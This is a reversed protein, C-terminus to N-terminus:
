ASAIPLAPPLADADIVTVIDADPILTDARLILQEEVNGDMRFGADKLSGLLVGNRLTAVYRAELFDIRLRRAFNQLFCAFANEVKKKAVRCSLALDTLVCTNEDVTLAAFGILGYDGFIDACSLHFCRVNPIATMEALSQRSLRRGSLNLQNTRQLLESCRELTAEDFASSITLRMGCQRLFQSADSGEAECAAKRKAEIMYLSRRRVSESTVPVDFSELTLLQPIDHVDFIRVAPLNQGVEGREFASDDIFAFSDIGIDLRKAITRLSASKRNWHIEPHLFYETLGYKELAAFAVDRDNKSAISQLIGREDLKRILHLSEARPFVGDPGDDGVVGTWLTNDLDWVVCKVKSAPTLLPPSVPAFVGPKYRVFDLWTLAIRAPFDNEPFLMALAHDGNRPLAAAARASRAVNQGPELRFTERHILEGAHRLELCLQFAEPGLNWAEMLFEDPDFTPAKRTTRRIIKERIANYYSQPQLFRRNGVLPSLLDSAVSARSLAADTWQFRRYSRVDLARRSVTSQLKGWKRFAIEVGYGLPGPYGANTAIGGEFRACNADARQIYLPCSRYCEPQACELCHEEWFTWALHAIDTANVASEAQPCLPPVVRGFDLQFM